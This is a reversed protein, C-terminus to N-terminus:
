FLPPSLRFGDVSTNGGLSIMGTSAAANVTDPVNARRRRRRRDM